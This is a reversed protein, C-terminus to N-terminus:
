KLNQKMLQKRERRIELESSEILCSILFSYWFKETDQGFCETPRLVQQWSRLFSMHLNPIIQKLQRIEHQFEWQKLRGTRLIMATGDSLKRLSQQLISLM